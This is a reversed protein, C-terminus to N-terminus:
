VNPKVSRGILICNDYQKLVDSLEDNIWIGEDLLYDAIEDTSDINLSELDQNTFNQSSYINNKLM